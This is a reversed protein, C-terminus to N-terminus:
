NEVPISYFREGNFPKSLQLMGHIAHILKRMIACIAQMKTLGNDKILHQYYAKINAEHASASLAPMSLARRLFRNGAKSIRRKKSVSTGSEITRPDLGAYAVWPKPKM